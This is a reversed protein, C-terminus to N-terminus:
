MKLMIKKNEERIKQRELFNLEKKGGNNEGRRAEEDWNMGEVEKKRRGEEEDRRWDRRGDEKKRYVREKHELFLRNFINPDPTLPKKGLNPQFSCTKLQSENFQLRISNKKESSERGRM